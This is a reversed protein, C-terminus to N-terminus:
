LLSRPNVLRSRSRRHRDNLTLMATATGFGFAPNMLRYGYECTGGSQPFTAALEASSLANCTAAIGAILLGVVFSAGSVGTVVFIGAGIIAGLGVGVADVLRLDRRLDNTQNAITKPENM